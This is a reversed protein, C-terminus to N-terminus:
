PLPSSSARDLGRSFGRRLRCCPAYRSRRSLGPLLLARSLALRTACSTRRVAAPRLSSFYGALVTAPLAGSTVREWLQFSRRVCLPVDVVSGLRDAVAPTCGAGSGSSRRRSSRRTPPWRPSRWLQRRWRTDDGSSRRSGSCGSRWFRFTARSALQRQDRVRPRRLVAADSVAASRHLPRALWYMSLAAILSFLIYAPTSPCRTSTATRGRAAGRPGLRQAAPAPARAHGGARGPLHLPRSESARSRHARAPGGGPLLHRRGPDAQNLFPLRLALVLAAVLLIDILRSRSEGDIAAEM